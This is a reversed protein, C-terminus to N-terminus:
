RKTRIASGIFTTYASRQEPQRRVCNQHIENPLVRESHEPCAFSICGVNVLAYGTVQTEILFYVLEQSVSNIKLENLVCEHSKSTVRIRTNVLDSNYM